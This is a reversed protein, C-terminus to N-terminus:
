IGDRARALIDGLKNGYKQDLSEGFREDEQKVMQWYKDPWGAHQRGDKDTSGRSQQLDRIVAGMFDKKSKIWKSVRSIAVIAQGVSEAKQNIKGAQAYDAGIGLYDRCAKIIADCKDGHTGDPIKADLDPKAPYINNDKYTIDKTDGKKPVVTNPLIVKKPLPKWKEYDKQIGYTPHNKNGKKAIMNMKLLIKVARCVHPSSMRAVAAIQSISMRDVKKNFGYTKRIIVKLVQEAEGPVRTRAWAEWLENAIRFFGEELQPNAM